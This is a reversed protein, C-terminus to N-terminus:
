ACHAAPLPQTSIAEVTLEKGGQWQVNSAKCKPCAFQKATTKVHAQCSGCVGHMPLTTIALTAHEAPTGEAMISFCGQLTYPEIGLLMGCSLRITHICSGQPPHHKAFEQLVITLLPAAISAEHM